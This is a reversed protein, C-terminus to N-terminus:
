TGSYHSLTGLLQWIADEALLALVTAIDGRSFAAYLDRVVQKSEQRSM